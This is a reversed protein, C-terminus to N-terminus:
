RLKDLSPEYSEELTEKEGFFFGCPPIQQNKCLQHFLCIMIEFKKLFIKEIKRQNTM